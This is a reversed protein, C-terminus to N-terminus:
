NGPTQRQEPRPQSPRSREQNPSRTDRQDIRQLMSEVRQDILEERQEAREELLARLREVSQKLQELQIRRADERQDFRAAVEAKLAKRFEERQEDTTAKRYQQVLNHIAMDLRRMEVAGEQHPRRARPGERESEEPTHQRDRTFRDPKAAQIRERVRNLREHLAQRFAAPDNERMERLVRAQEPDQQEIHDLLRNIPDPQGNRAMGESAFALALLLIMTHITFNKM